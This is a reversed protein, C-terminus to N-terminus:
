RNKKVLSYLRSSIKKLNNTLLSRAEKIQLIMATDIADQSSAGYHLYPIYNKHINKKIKNLINITLVGSYELDEQLQYTEFDCNNIAKSINLYAKHPINKLQYNAKLLM